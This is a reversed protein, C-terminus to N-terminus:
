GFGQFCSGVAALVLFMLQIATCPFLFLWREARRWLGPSRVVEHACHEHLLGQRLCLALIFGYSSLLFLCRAQQVHQSVHAVIFHSFAAGELDLPHGPASM